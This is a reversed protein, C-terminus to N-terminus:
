ARDKPGFSRGDFNTEPNHVVQGNFKGLVQKVEFNSQLSFYAYADIKSKLRFLVSIANLLM